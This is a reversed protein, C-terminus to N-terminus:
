EPRKPQYEVHNHSDHMVIDFWNLPCGLIACARERARYILEGHTQADIEDGAGDKLWKNRLDVASKAYHLSKWSHRAELESGSTIMGHGGIQSYEDSLLLVFLAMEPVFLPRVSDDKLLM